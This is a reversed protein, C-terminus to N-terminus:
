QVMNEKATPKQAKHEADEAVGLVCVYERECVCVCVCVMGEM